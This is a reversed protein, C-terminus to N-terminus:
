TICAGAARPDARPGPRHREYKLCLERVFPLKTDIMKEGLHRLDLHVVHGHPGEVTRGKEQEKVFAQSLRDRPGSSWRQAAVPTPM